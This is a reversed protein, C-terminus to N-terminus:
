FLIDFIISYMEPVLILMLSIASTVPNSCGDCKEIAKLFAKPVVGLSAM